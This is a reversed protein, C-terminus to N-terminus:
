TGHPPPSLQLKGYGTADTSICVPFTLELNGDIFMSLPPMNGAAPSMTRALMEQLVTTLSRLAVRGNEVSDVGLTERIGRIKPELQCRPPALRIM